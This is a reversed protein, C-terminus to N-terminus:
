RIAYEVTVVAKIVKDISGTDNEGDGSVETSFAPTIQFVGQSASKLDGPSNGSGTLLRGARDHANATAKGIMELKMDGLKTYLYQPPGALLEIGQGILEGADRAVAAILKVTITQDRLKVKEFSKRALNTSFMVALPLTCTFLILRFLNIRATSM